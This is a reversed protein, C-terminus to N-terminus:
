ITIYKTTTTIPPTSFPYLHDIVSTTRRYILSYQSHTIVTKLRGLTLLKSVAWDTDIDGATGLQWFRGCADLVAHVTQGWFSGAQVCCKNSLFLRTFQACRTIISDLIQKITLKPM